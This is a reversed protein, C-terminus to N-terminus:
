RSLRSIGDGLQIVADQLNKARIVAISNTGDQERRQDSPPAKGSLGRGSLGKGAGVASTTITVIVQHYDERFNTNRFSLGSLGLAGGPPTFTFGPALNGTLRTRFLITDGMRRINPEKTSGELEGDLNLFIFNEILDRINKQGGMPYIFAVDRVMRCYDEDPKQALTIAHDSIEFNRKVDRTRDGELGFGVVAVDRPLTRILGGQVGQVNSETGQLTFDYNITSNQYYAIAKRLSPTFLETRLRSFDQPNAKLRAALELGSESGYVRDSLYKEAETIVIGRLADRVECRVKAVINFTNDGSAEQSVPYVSCGGALSGIGLAIGLYPISKIM